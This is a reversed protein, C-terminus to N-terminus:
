AFTVSFSYTYPNMVRGTTDTVGSFTLNHAGTNAFNITFTWTINDASALASIVGGNDITMQPSSLNVARSFTVTANFTGGTSLSIPINTSVVFLADGQAAGGGPAELKSLLNINTCGIGTVAFIMVIM